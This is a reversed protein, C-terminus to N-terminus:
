YVDRERVVTARRARNMLLMSVVLGLAGAAMLIYGVVTLDVGSIADTVAFALIAGAALLFISTGIGM